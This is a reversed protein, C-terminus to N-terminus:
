VNFCFLSVLVLINVEFDDLIYENFYIASIDWVETITCDYRRVKVFNLKM